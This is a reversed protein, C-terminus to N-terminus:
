GFSCPASSRGKAPSRGAGAPPFWEGRGGRFLQRKYVDPAAVREQPEEADNGEVGENGYSDQEGDARDDFHGEPVGGPEPEHLQHVEFLREELIEHSDRICM